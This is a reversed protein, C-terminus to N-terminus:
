GEIRKCAIVTWRRTTHLGDWELPEGDIQWDEAVGYHNVFRIRDRASIDHFKKIYVTIHTELKERETEIGETAVGPAIRAYLSESPTWTDEQTEGTIDAEGPAYKLVTVKLRKM